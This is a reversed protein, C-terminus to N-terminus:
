VPIYFNFEIAASITVGGIVIANLGPYYDNHMDSSSFWIIKRNFWNCTMGSHTSSGCEAPNLPM